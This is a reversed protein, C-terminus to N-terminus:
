LKRGKPSKHVVFVEDSVPVPNGDPKVWVSEVGHQGVDGYFVKAATTPITHWGVSLSTGEFERNLVGSQGDESILKTKTGDRNFAIIKGM